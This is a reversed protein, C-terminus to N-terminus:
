KGRTTTTPELSTLLSSGEKHEDRELSVTEVALPLGRRHVTNTFGDGSSQRYSSHFIARHTRWERERRPEEQAAARRQSHLRPAQCSPGLRRRKRAGRSVKTDEDRLFTMLRIGQAVCHQPGPTQNGSSCLTCSAPLFKWLSSGLKSQLETSSRRAITGMGHRLHQIVHRMKFSTFSM